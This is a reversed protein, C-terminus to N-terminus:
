GFKALKYALVNKFSWYGGCNGGGRRFLPQSQLRRSEISKIQCRYKRYKQDSLLGAAPRM